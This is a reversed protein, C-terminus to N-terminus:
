RAEVKSRSHANHRIKIIAKTAVRGLLYGAVTLGAILGTTEPFTFENPAHNRAVVIEHDQAKIESKLFVQTDAKARLKIQGADNYAQLMGARAGELKDIDQMAASHNGTRGAWTLIGAGLGAMGGLSCVVGRIEEDTTEYNQRAYEPM